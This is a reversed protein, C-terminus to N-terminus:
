GLIPQGNADFRRLVFISTDSPRRASLWWGTKPHYTIVTGLQAMQRFVGRALEEDEDSLPVGREMDRAALFEKYRQDGHHLPNMKWPWNSKHGTEGEPRGLKAISLTVAQRTIGRGTVKYFLAAIEHHTKGEDEWYKAWEPNMGVRRGRTVLVDPADDVTIV